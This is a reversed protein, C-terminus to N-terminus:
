QMSPPNMRGLSLQKQVNPIGIYMISPLSLPTTNLGSLRVITCNYAIARNMIRSLKTILEHFGTNSRLIQTRAWDHFFGFGKKRVPSKEHEGGKERAEPCQNCTKGRKAGDVRKVASLM